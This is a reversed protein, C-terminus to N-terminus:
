TLCPPWMGSHSALAASYPRVARGGCTRRSVAKSRYWWAGTASELPTQGRWTPMDDRIGRRTMAVGRDSTGLHERAHIAILM